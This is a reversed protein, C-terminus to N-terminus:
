RVKAFFEKMVIEAARDKIEMGPMLWAIFIYDKGGAKQYEELSM